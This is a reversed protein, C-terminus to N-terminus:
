MRRLGSGSLEDAALFSYANERFAFHSPFHFSDGLNGHIECISSLNGNVGAIGGCPVITM